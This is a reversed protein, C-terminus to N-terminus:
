QYYLNVQGLWRGPDREPHGHGPHGQGAHVGQGLELGPGATVSEGLVTLTTTGEFSSAPFATLICTYNVADTMEVYKITFSLDETSAGSFEVRGKLRM